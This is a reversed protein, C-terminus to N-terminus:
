REHRPNPRSTNEPSVPLVARPDRTVEVPPGDVPLPIAGIEFIRRADDEVGHGDAEVLAVAIPMTPRLPSPLDVRSRSRAPRMSGSAPRTVRRPPTSMPMSSWDSSRSWSACRPVLRDDAVDVLVDPGAVRADAVDDRPSRRRCGTPRRRRRGRRRGAGGPRAPPAARRRGRRSRGRRAWWGGRRRPCRRARRCVQLVRQAAFAPPSRTTVWSRHNRSSTQVAVQSTCSRMSRATRPRSRPTCGAARRARGCPRRWRPWARLVQMRLSSAQSRRPAGARVALGFNRMSAALASISVLRRARSVTESAAAPWAAARCPRRRGRSMETSSRRRRRDQRSTSQRMAGPSRM